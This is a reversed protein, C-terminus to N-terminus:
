VARRKAFINQYEVTINRYVSAQAFEGLVDYVDHDIIASKTGDFLVFSSDPILRLKRRLESKHVFTMDKNFRVLYVHDEFVVTVSAHMNARIVWVVSALLGIGIGTLLDTFLVGAITAGFPIFQDLGREYSERIINLSTLKYGVSILIAALCALPIKNLLFPIFLVSGLLLVGHVFSALRTRGGAYVNTSSRVIVATIPLGGVLGSVTNGVGQAILERNTDSIRKEPDLKDAAEVSLLSELSGIIAITLATLWVDGRLIGSFDPFSTLSSFAVNSPISVLHHADQHLALSPAFLTFIENLFVGFIVAVLPGPILLAWKQKKVIPRDWVFLLVLCFVGIILAGESVGQLSTLIPQLPEHIAPQIMAEDGVFDLDWGVLHPLQKFIIVLGIGALMGRIVSNPVYDGVIGARIIGLVVQILGAIVVCILFIEFSGLSTIAVAVISALGAAPGSVSVESGSLISVVVGGIIGAILGSLPPAGSALAIGLCLPLAVLFVVIGAPVDAAASRFNPIFLFNAM